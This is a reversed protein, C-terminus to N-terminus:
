HKKRRIKELKALVDKDLNRELYNRKGTNGKEIVKRYEKQTEELERLLERSSMRYAGKSWIIEQQLKDSTAVIVNYEKLLNGVEREIVHDASIGFPSYIVEVRGDLYIEGPNDKVKHGDFVVIVRCAKYGVYDNLLHILEDRADQINKEMLESLKPWSNLINYGDVM